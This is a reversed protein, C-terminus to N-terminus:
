PGSHEVYELKCVRSGGLEGWLQMLQYNMIRAVRTCVAERDGGRLWGRDRIVGDGKGQM